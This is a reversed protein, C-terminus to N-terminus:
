PAEQDGTEWGTACDSCSLASLHQKPTTGFVQKYDRSFASMSTYGCEMAIDKVQTGFPAVELRCRAAHIRQTRLWQMPGCGFRKQFVRQLSRGSYGSREELDSLTIPELCNDKIWDMLKELKHAKEPVAANEDIKPMLLNVLWRLLLEDLGLSALLVDDLFGLDEIFHLLTYMSEIFFARQCSDKSLLAPQLLQELVAPDLKEGGRNAAVVEQIEAPRVIVVLGSFSPSLIESQWQLSPLYLISQKNHISFRPKNRSQSAGTAGPIFFAADTGVSSELDLPMGKTAIICLNGIKTVTTVNEDAAARSSTKCSKARRLERAIRAFRGIYKTHAIHALNAPPLQQATSLRQM